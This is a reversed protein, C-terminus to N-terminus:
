ASPLVFAGGDVVPLTDSGNKMTVTYVYRGQDLNATVDSPLSLQLLGNAGDVATCVFTAKVNLSSFSRKLRGTFISSMINSYTNTSSDTITINSYFNSGQNIFLELYHSM